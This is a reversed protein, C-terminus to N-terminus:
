LKFCVGFWRAKSNMKLYQGHVLTAEMMEEYATNLKM